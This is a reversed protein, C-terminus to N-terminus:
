YRTMQGGARRCEHLRKTYWKYYENISEQDIEEEFIKTFCALGAKESACRIAHFKRKCSSALSELISFDPSMGPLTLLLLDYEKAWRLTAGAKHASDADQCLTLGREKLEDVIALFIVEIYVKTTMKGVKNPVEYSIIKRWNWGIVVFANV